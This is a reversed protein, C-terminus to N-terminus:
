KHTHPDDEGEIVFAESGHSEAFGRPDPHITIDAAPFEKLIAKEASVMLKHAEILSLNAPMEAHFQIHVWPGSARTRLQHVDLLGTGDLALTSIRARAEDSLERDLLQDLGERAVELASYALWAAVLLGILPDAWRLGLFGAAVIGSIVAGNAALDAMYHARDGKTAVSGTQEIAKTQAWVLALTLVVSVGMVSLALWSHSIDQPDLFHGIAEIAVLTASVGVLAAQMIAAFAEAKGHGYRHEADPPMAAYTVAMLTFLSAAGDLSSDALSSLLAVSDSWMWAAAKLIVLVLATAVSLAAVRRTIRAAAQPMLTGPLNLEDAHSM